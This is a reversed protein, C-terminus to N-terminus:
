KLTYLIGMVIFSKLTRLDVQRHYTITSTAIDAHELTLVELRGLKNIVRKHVCIMRREEGEEYHLVPKLLLKTIEEVTTALMMEKVRNNIDIRYKSASKIKNAKTFYIELPINAFDLLKEILKSRNEVVVTENFNGIILPKIKDLPYWTSKSDKDSLNRILCVDDDIEEVIFFSYDVGLRNLYFNAEEFERVKVDDSPTYKETTEKKSAQIGGKIAKTTKTKETTKKTTKNKDRIKTPRVVVNFGTLVNVLFRDCAEADRFGMKQAKKDRAPYSYRRLKSLAQKYEKIKKENRKM